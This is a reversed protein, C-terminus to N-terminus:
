AAPHTAVSLGDGLQAIEQDLIARAVDYSLPSSPAAAAIQIGDALALLRATAPESFPRGTWQQIAGRLLRRLEADSATVEEATGPEGDAWDSRALERLSFWIRVAAQEQSTQPVALEPPLGDAARFFGASAWARFRQGFRATIMEHLYVTPPSESHREEIELKLRQTLGQRSIDVGAAVVAISLRPMGAGALLRVAADTVQDDLSLSFPKLFEDM